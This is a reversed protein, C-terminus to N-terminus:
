DCSGSSSGSDDCSATGSDHNRHPIVDWDNLPNLPSVPSFPNLPNLLHAPDSIPDQQAGRAASRKDNAMAQAMAAARPDQRNAAQYMEAARSKNAMSRPAIMTRYGLAEGVTKNRCASCIYEKAETWGRPEHKGCTRCEKTQIISMIIERQTSFLGLM